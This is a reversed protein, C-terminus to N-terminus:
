KLLRIGGSEFNPIDCCTVPRCEISQAILKEVGRRKCFEVLLQTSVGCCEGAHFVISSYQPRSKEPLNHPIQYVMRRIRCNKCALIERLTDDFSIHSGSYILSANESEVAHFGHKCEKIAVGHLRDLM